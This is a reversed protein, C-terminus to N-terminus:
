EYPASTRLRKIATMVIAFSEGQPEDARVCARSRPARSSWVNLRERRLLRPPKKNQAMSAQLRQAGHSEEAFLKRAACLRFNALTQTLKRRAARSPPSAADGAPEACDFWDDSIPNPGIPGVAYAALAMEWRAKQPPPSRRAGKLPSDHEGFARNFDMLLTM